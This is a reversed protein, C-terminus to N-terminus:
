VGVGLCRHHVAVNCLLCGELQSARSCRTICGCAHRVMMHLDMFNRIPYPDAFENLM